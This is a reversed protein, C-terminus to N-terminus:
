GDARQEEIGFLEDRAMRRELEWRVSDDLPPPPRMDCFPVGAFRGRNRAVWAYALDALQRLGPVRYIATMVPVGAPLFADLTAAVAGAGRRHAGSPMVAWAAADTDAQTLGVLPGLGPTQSPLWVVKRRWDLGAVWAVVRSCFGCTGDFIVLLQDPHLLAQTQIAVPLAAAM